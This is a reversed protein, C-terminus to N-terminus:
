HHGAHAKAPSSPRLLNDAKLGAHKSLQGSMGGGNYIDLKDQGKAQVHTEEGSHKGNPNQIHDEGIKKIRGFTQEQQRLLSYQQRDNSNVRSLRPSDPRKEFVHDLHKKENVTMNPPDNPRITKIFKTRLSDTRAPVVGNVPISEAICLLAVFITLLCLLTKTLFISYM